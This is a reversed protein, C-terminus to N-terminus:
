KQRVLWLIRKYSVLYHLIVIVGFVWGAIAQSTSYLAYAALSFFVLELVLRVVGPLAVPAHGARSPDGPVAFAGWLAAAIVPLALALVFQLAGEARSWGWMAFAALATLELLFRVALNVTNVLM